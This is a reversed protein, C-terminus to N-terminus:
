DQRNWVIQERGNIREHGGTGNHGNITIIVNPYQNLLSILNNAWVIDSAGGGSDYIIGGTPGNLFAHTAVIINYNQNSYTNLLNTAWSLQASNAMCELDIVLFNYGSISFKVATNEGENYDGVWYSNGSFTAPNFASYQNGVWGSDPNNFGNQDHNGACWCYPVGSNTLIAMATNAAGWQTSDYYQDTIDGTHIVMKLNYNAANNAIWTTLETYLYPYTSSLFQTDTIQMISFSTGTPTPTPTPTPIPTSTPTPTPTPSTSIGTAYISMAGDTATGWIAGFPNSFGSAYSSVANHDRQGTGTVEMLNIPVNGMIALGYTTGSTVTYPTPLQFDVWSMTTGINASNSQELLAGASNGNTAYLATIAKGSTAGDIYAIIDTVSGTTTCKFYSISQANADNNDTYAGINTNGFTFSTDAHTTKFGDYTLLSVFSIIILVTLIKQVNKKM